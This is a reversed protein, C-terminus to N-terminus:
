SVSKVGKRSIEMKHIVQILADLKCFDPGNLVIYISKNM